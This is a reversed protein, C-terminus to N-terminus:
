LQTKVPLNTTKPRRDSCKTTIWKQINALSSCVIVVDTHIHLIRFSSYNENFSSFCITQPSYIWVTYGQLHWWTQDTELTLHQRNCWLVNRLEALLVSRLHYISSFWWQISNLNKKLFFPKYGSIAAPRKHFKKDREDKWLQLYSLFYLLESNIHIKGETVLCNM